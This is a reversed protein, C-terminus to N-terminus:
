GGIKAVKRSISEGEKQWEAKDGGKRRLDKKVYQLLYLLTKSPKKVGKELYYIYHGSVGLLEGL